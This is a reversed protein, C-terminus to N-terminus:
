RTGLLEELRDLNAELSADGPAAVLGALFDERAGTLDGSTARLVGRRNLLSPDGPALLLAEDMRALATAPDGLVDHAASLAVLRSVSRTATDAEGDWRLADRGAAPDRTQDARMAFAYAAAAPVGPDWPRLTRATAFATDAASRDGSALSDVAIRLPLEALAAVLAVVALTACATALALELRRRARDAPAAVLAGAVLLALLLPGPTTPHTLLVVGYGTLAALGSQLRHRTTPDASRVRLVASRAGVVVMLALLALLVLGGTAAAQLPLLHATDPPNAAGVERYWDLDHYRPIVDVFRSPGVGLLVHDGVLDVTESWLRWRGGVTAAAVPDSGLVRERIGPIATAAVILAGAVLAPVRASRRSMAVVVLVVVAGLLAGRSGSLVVALAGAGAGAGTWPDRRDIWAGLLVALAIVAWAGQDTANGLLSGPRPSTSALPGAGLAELVAVGAVALAGVAVFRELRQWTRDPAAPGLLRAGVALTAVYASLGLVGEHRPWGGALATSPADSTIARVLLWGAGAGVVVAVSRPLRGHRPGWGWALAAGGLVVAYKGLVYQNLGGPVVALTGLVLLGLAVHAIVDRERSRTV